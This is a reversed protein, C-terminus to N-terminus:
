KSDTRRRGKLVLLWTVEDKLALEEVDVDIDVKVLSRIDLSVLSIFKISLLLM